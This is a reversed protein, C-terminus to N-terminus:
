RVGAVGVQPETLESSFPEWDESPL